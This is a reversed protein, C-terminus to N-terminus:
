NCWQKTSEWIHIFLLVSQNILSSIYLIQGSAVQASATWQQLMAQVLHHHHHHYSCALDSYFLPNRFKGGPSYLAHIQRVQARHIAVPKRNACSKPQIITLCKPPSAATGIHLVVETSEPNGSWCLWSHWELMVLIAVGAYGPSGSWCLWSQWELMVLVAVGAYGPNGSWCLKAPESGWAASTM